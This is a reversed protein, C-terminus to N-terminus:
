GTLPTRVTLSMPAGNRIPMPSFMAKAGDVFSRSLEKAALKQKSASYYPTYVIRSGAGTRSLPTSCGSCGGSKRRVGGFGMFRPQTPDSFLNPQSCKQQVPPLETGAAAVKPQPVYHRNM